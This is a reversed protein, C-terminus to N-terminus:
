AAAPRVLGLIQANGVLRAADLASRGGFSKHHVQAGYQLLLVVAERRQLSVAHHLATNGFGDRSNPEAARPWCRLWQRWPSTM